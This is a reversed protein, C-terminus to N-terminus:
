LCDGCGIGSLVNQVGRSGGNHRLNLRKPWSCCLWLANRKRTRRQWLHCLRRPSGDRSVATGRFPSHPIGSWRRRTEASVPLRQPM